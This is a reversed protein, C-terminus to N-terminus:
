ARKSFPSTAARAGAAQAVPSNLAIMGAQKCSPCAKYKSTLRWMSYIFGPVLFCCWLVLEILFSGKTVTVPEGITGCHPLLAYSGRVHM